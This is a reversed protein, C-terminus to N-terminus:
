KIKNYVNVLMTTFLEVSNDPSLHMHFVGWEGKKQALHCAGLIRISSVSDSKINVTLLVVFFLEVSNDPSLHM